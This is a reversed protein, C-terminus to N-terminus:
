QSNRALCSKNLHEPHLWASGQCLSLKEQQSTDLDALVVGSLAEAEKKSLAAPIERVDPRPNAPCHVAKHEARVKGAGIGCSKVGCCGPM